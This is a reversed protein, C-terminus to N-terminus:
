ASRYFAKLFETKAKENEFRFVHEEGTIDTGRIYLPSTDPQISVIYKTKVTVKKLSTIAKHIM